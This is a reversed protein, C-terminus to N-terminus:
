MCNRANPFILEFTCDTACGVGITGSMRVPHKPRREAVDWLCRPSGFTKMMELIASTVLLYAQM